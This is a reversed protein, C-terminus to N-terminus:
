SIMAYLKKKRAHVFFLSVTHNEPPELVVDELTKKKGLHDMFQALFSVSPFYEQTPSKGSPGFGLTWVREFILVYFRIYAVTQGWKYYDKSHITLHQLKIKLFLETVGHTDIGGVTM